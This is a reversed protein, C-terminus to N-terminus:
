RRRPWHTSTYICRESSRDSRLYIESVILLTAVDFLRGPIKIAIAFQNEELVQQRLCPKGCSIRSSVHNLTRDTSFLEIKVSAPLKKSPWVNNAKDSQYHMTAGCTKLKHAGMKCIHYSEAFISVAVDQSRM